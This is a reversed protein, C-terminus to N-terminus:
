SSYACVTPNLHLFPVKHGGTTVTKTIASPCLDSTFSTFLYSNSIIIIYHCVAPNGPKIASM